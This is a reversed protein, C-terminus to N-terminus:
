GRVRAVVISMVDGRREPPVEVSREGGPQTAKRSALHFVLTNGDWEFREVRAWGVFRENLDDASSRELGAWAKFRRSLRDVFLIGNQHFACYGVPDPSNSAILYECLGLAALAVVGALLGVKGFREPPLLLLAVAAAFTLIRFVWRMTSAPPSANLLLLRRSRRLRDYVATVMAVIGAIALYVLFGPDM